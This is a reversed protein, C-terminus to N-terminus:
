TGEPIEIEKFCTKCLRWMGKGKIAVFGGMGETGPVERKCLGCPTTMRDLKKKAKLLSKITLGKSAKYGKKIFAKSPRTTTLGRGGAGVGCVTKFEVLM